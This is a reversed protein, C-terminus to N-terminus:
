YVRGKITWDEIDARVSEWFIYIRASGRKFASKDSQDQVFGYKELISKAKDFPDGPRVGYISYKSDSIQIWGAKRKLLGDWPYAITVASNDYEYFQAGFGGIPSGEGLIKEVQDPTMLLKVSSIDLNRNIRYVEIYPSFVYGLLILAVLCIVAIVFTKRRIKM